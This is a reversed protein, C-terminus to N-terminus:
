PRDRDSEDPLRTSVGFYNYVPDRGICCTAIAYVGLTLGVWMAPSGRGFWTFSVYMLMVFFGFRSVRDAVGLTGAGKGEGDNGTRSRSGSGSETRRSTMRSAPAPLDLMEYEAGDGWAHSSMLGKAIFFLLAVGSAALIPELWGSIFPM